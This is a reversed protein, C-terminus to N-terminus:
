FKGNANKWQEKPPIAEVVDWHEVMKNDEIRYLDYFAAPKADFLGESMVLAFNGQGLVKHVKEIKFVFGPKAYPGTKLQFGSKNDEGDCSHQRFTDMSRYQSVKDGQGRLIVTDFYGNVVDKNSETKDLDAVETPGDLQSRGSLNLHSCKEELNDWHEVVKGDEFRFVDFGVKPGFFEYESQAVVFDGDAFIRVTNVTTNNPLRSILQKLGAPGDAVQLNHQIYKSSSIYTSSPNPDKTELSKLLERVIELKQKPALGEASAIGALLAPLASLILGTIM